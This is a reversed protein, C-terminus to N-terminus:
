PHAHDFPNEVPLGEAAAAELMRNDGGILTASRGHSALESQLHLATALHLADYAKLPHKQALDAAREVLSQLAPLAVYLGRMVDGRFEDYAIFGRRRSLRGTRVLAALAASTEVYTLQSIFMVHDPNDLLIRVWTTGPEPVYKKVIASTDVYYHAM